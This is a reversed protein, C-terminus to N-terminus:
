YKQKRRFIKRSCDRKNLFLDRAIAPPPNVICQNYHLTMISYYMM